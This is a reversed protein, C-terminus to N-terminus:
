ASGATEQDLLGRQMGERVAQARSKVALKRYINKVQTDVTHLSRHSTEAIQRNSLGQSVMRLVKRERPSLLAQSRDPGASSAAKRTRVAKIVVPAPKPKEPAVRAGLIQRALRSAMAIEGQAVLRMLSALEGENAESFLLSIAGAAAASDALLDHEGTTWEAPEEPQRLAGPRSMAIHEALLRDETAARTSEPLAIWRQPGSATRAARFRGGRAAITNNKRFPEPKSLASFLPTKPRISRSGTGRDAGQAMGQASQKWALVCMQDVWRSRERIAVIRARAGGRKVGLSRGLIKGQGVISRALWRVPQGGLAPQSATGTRRSGLRVTGRKIKGRSM